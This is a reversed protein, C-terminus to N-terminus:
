ASVPVTSDGPALGRAKLINTANTLATEYFYDSDFADGTVCAYNSFRLLTETEFIRDGKLTAWYGSFSGNGSRFQVIGRQEYRQEFSGDPFVFRFVLRESFTYTGISTPINVDRISLLPFNDPGQVSVLEIGLWAPDFIVTTLSQDWMAQPLALSPPRSLNPITLASRADVRRAPLRHAPQWALFPLNHHGIPDIPDIPIPITLDMLGILDMLGMPGLLDPLDTPGM